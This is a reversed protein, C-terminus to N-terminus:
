KRLHRRVDDSNVGVEDVAARLQGETCGLETTWYRVVECSEHLYIWTRERKPRATPDCFLADVRPNRPFTGSPRTESIAGLLENLAVPKTLHDHFGAWQSRLYSLATADGTLAIFKCGPLDKRLADGLEHGGMTPMNVDLIAVQPRFEAAVTLANLPEYAVRTEHGHMELVHAVIDASDVDDDVVLVRRATSPEHAICAAPSVM